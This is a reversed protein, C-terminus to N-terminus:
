RDGGFITGGDLQVFTEAEGRDTGEGGADPGALPNSIGSGAPAAGEAKSTNLAMVHKVCQGQVDKVSRRMKLTRTKFCRAFGAM